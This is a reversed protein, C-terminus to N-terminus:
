ELVAEPWGLAGSAMGSAIGREKMERTMTIDTSEYSM